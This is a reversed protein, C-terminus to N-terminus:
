AILSKITAFVILVNTPSLGMSPEDLIILHPKKTHGRGTALIQREGGSM